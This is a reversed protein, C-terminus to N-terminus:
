EHYVEYLADALEERTQVALEYEEGDQGDAAPAGDDGERADVTDEWTDGEDLLFNHLAVCCEIVSPVFETEASVKTHLVRWRGKLLGFANEVVARPSCLFRNYLKRRETTLQDQPYPKLLWTQLAFGGDALLLYVPHLVPNDGAQREYWGSEKFARSDAMSGRLGSRTMMIRKDADVIALLIVGHFCKRTNFAAKFKAPPTRIPILCGDIVGAVKRIRCDLRTEFRRAVAAQGDLTKPFHPRPLASLIAGVVELLIPSFTAAAMDAVECSTFQSGGQGLWFVVVLLRIRPEITPPRGVVGDGDARLFPLVLGLLKEFSFPTMRMRKFFYIDSRGLRTVWARGNDRLYIPRAGCAGGPFLLAVSFAFLAAMDADEDDSDAALNGQGGVCEADGEAGGGGAPGGEEVSVGLDTEGLFAGVEDGVDPSFDGGALDISFPDDIYRDLAALPDEWHREGRRHPM